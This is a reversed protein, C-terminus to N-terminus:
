SLEVLLADFTDPDNEVCSPWVEEAVVRIEALRKRATDRHRAHRLTLQLVRATESPHAPGGLCSQWARNAPLALRVQRASGSKTTQVSDEYRWPGLLYDLDAPPTPSTLESLMFGLDAHEGLAAFEEDLWIRVGGSDKATRHRILRHVVIRSGPRGEARWGRERLVLNRLAAVLCPHTINLLDADLEVGAGVWVGCCAVADDFAATCEAGLQARLAGVAASPIFRVGFVTGHM